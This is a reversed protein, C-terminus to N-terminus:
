NVIKEVTIFCFDGVKVNIKLVLAKNLKAELKNDLDDSAASHNNDATAKLLEQAKM